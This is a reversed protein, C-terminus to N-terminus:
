WVLNEREFGEISLTTTYLKNRYKGEVFVGPAVKQRLRCCVNCRKGVMKALGCIARPSAEQCLDSTYKRTKV